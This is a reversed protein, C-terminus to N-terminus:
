YSPFHPVTFMYSTRGAMHNYVSRPDTATYATNSARYLGLTAAAPDPWWIFCFPKERAWKFREIDPSETPSMYKRSQREFTAWLPTFNDKTSPWLDGDYPPYFVDYYATLQAASTPTAVYRRVSAYFGAPSTTKVVDVEYTATVSLYAPDSSYGLVFISCSTATTNTNRNAPFLAGTVLSQSVLYDRFKLPSDPFSSENKDTLSFAIRAPRFTTIDTRALPFVATAAMTDTMFRERMDEARLVAGYNPAVAAQITAQNLGYYNNLKASDLTIVATNGARPKGRAITGYAVAAAGIIMAGLAMAVLLEATSFGGRQQFRRNM